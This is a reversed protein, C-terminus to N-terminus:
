GKNSGMFTYQNCHTCEWYVAHWNDLTTYKAFMYYGKCVWCFFEKRLMAM